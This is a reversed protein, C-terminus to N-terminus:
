LDTRNEPVGPDVPSNGATGQHNRGRASIKMFAAADAKRTEAQLIMLDTRSLLGFEEQSLPMALDGLKAIQLRILEMELKSPSVVLTYEGGVQRLEEAERTAKSILDINLEKLEVEKHTEGAKTLGKDLMFSKSM